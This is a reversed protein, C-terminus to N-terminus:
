IFNGDIKFGLYKDVSNGSFLRNCSIRSKIKGAIKKRKSKYIVLETKECNQSFRIGILWKILNKLDISVLKSRKKISTDLYSLNTNDAFLHVKFCNWQKLDSIYLLFLLLGPLSSFLDALQKSIVKKLVIMIKKPISFLGSNIKKFPAFNASLEHNQKFFKETSYDPTSVPQKWCQCVLKPCVLKNHIGM